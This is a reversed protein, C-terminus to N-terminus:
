LGYQEIEKAYDKDYSAQMQMMIATYENHNEFEAGLNFVNDIMRISSMLVEVQTDTLKEVYPAFEPNSRIKQIQKATM